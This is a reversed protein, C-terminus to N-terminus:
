LAIAMSKSHDPRVVSHRDFSFYSTIKIEQHQQPQSLNFITTAAKKTFQAAKAHSSPALEGRSAPQHRCTHWDSRFRQVTQMCPSGAILSSLCCTADGRCHWVCNYWCADPVIVSDTQTLARRQTCSVHLPCFSWESLRYASWASHTKHLGLLLFCRNDSQASLDAQTHQEEYWLTQARSCTQLDFASPAYPQNYERVSEGISLPETQAPLWCVPAHDQRSHINVIDECLSRQVASNM